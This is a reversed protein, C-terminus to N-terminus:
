ATMTYTANLEKDSQQLSPSKDIKTTTNNNANFSNEPTLSQNNKEFNSLTSKDSQLSALDDENRFLFRFFM